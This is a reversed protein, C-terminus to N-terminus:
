NDAQISYRANAGATANRINWATVEEFFSYYGPAIFETEIVAGSSLVRRVVANNDFLQIDFRRSTFALSTNATAFANAATGAAVAANTSPVVAALLPQTTPTFQM